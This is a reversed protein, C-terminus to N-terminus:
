RDEKKPKRLRVRQRLKAPKEWKSIDLPLSAIRIREQLQAHFTDLEGLAAMVRMLSDMGGAGHREMRSLTSVPVGSKSALAPQTLELRQRALRLWQGLAQRADRPRTIQLSYQKRRPIVNM